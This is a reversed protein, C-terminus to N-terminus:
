LSFGQTYIRGYRDVFNVSVNGKYNKLIKDIDQQTNVEKGNVKLIIYGQNLGIKSFISGPQLSSVFVGSNIGYQVKQKDTLPTLVIGLKETASLEDKSRIKASGNLDKLVISFSKKRGNRVVEVEVKDGPHKRGVALSLNPFTNIVTGDVKTIIDGKQVGAEKAGGYSTVNTVYVGRGSKLNTGEKRNYDKLRLEDSLDFGEIGLYGRQVMGYNRIDDVVKKVLNSPVAFGYGTFTGTKSAIASNIGVLDGNTNILAGGSNGPNIAADTQIFSEIPNDSNQRLIDINRAKASVIGATVTSTLTGFPNGIALVWEGVKLNDSNYFSLFPLHDEDIKLLALDTNPDTGLLKATYSQNNNLTVELKAADKIVHNNTVIYGDSSIIVGSGSGAPILDNESKKDGYYKQQPQRNQPGFFHEFFPDNFLDFPNGQQQRIESPDAYNIINVVAGVSKEAAATFDPMVTGKSNYDYSVFHSGDNSGDTTTVISKANGWLNNHQSYEVLGYTTGASVVGVLAYALINKM